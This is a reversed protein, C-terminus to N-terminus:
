VRMLSSQFAQLTFGFAEVIFSLAQRARFASQIMIAAGEEMAKLREAQLKKYEKRALKARFLAQIKKAAAVRVKHEKEKKLRQVRKSCLYGRVKSQIKIILAEEREEDTGGHDLRLHILALRVQM